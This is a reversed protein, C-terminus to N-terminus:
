SEPNPCRRRNHGVQRCLGCRRVKTSPPVRQAEEQEEMKASLVAATADDLVAEGAYVDFLKMKRDGSLAKLGQYVVRLLQGEELGSGDIAGIIATGSITYPQSFGEGSPVAIMAVSYQGFSGDMLTQGLYNGVIETGVKKPAWRKPRTLKRWRIGHAVADIPKANTMM